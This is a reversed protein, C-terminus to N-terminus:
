NPSLADIKKKKRSRLASGYQESKKSGSSVVVVVDGRPGYCRLPWSRGAIGYYDMSLRQEFM